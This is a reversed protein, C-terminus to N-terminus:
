GSIVARCFKIVLSLVTLTIFLGCLVGFIKSVILMWGKRHSEVKNSKEWQVGSVVLLFGSIFIGLAFWLFHEGVFNVFLSM